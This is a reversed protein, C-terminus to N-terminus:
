GGIRVVDREPDFKRDTRVLAIQEEDPNHIQVLLGGQRKSYKGLVPRHGTIYVADEAGLAEMVSKVSGDEAEGNATWTLGAVVEDDDRANIIEEKNYAKLPEAHSVVCNDFAAILPLADEFCGMLHLVDDGYVARMFATTMAGEDTFKCFPYDGGGDRNRINEHNGKLFHFCEGYKCKLRMVLMLLNLGEAMEETMAAGDAIGQRSDQWARMWRGRGRMESHLADGVCVIRVAGQELAEQVSVDGGLFDKPLTYEMIHKLFYVRAHLDPVVILPLREQEAFDLLAGKRYPATMEKELVGISRDALSCIEDHSPLTM